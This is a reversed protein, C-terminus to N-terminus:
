TGAVNSFVEPIGDFFLMDPCNRENLIKMLFPMYLSFEVGGNRFELSDTWENEAAVNHVCWLINELVPYKRFDREVNRSLVFQQESYDASPVIIDGHENIDSEDWRDEEMYEPYIQHFIGNGALFFMCDTKKKDLITLVQIELGYKKLLIQGTAEKLQLRYADLEEKVTRIKEIRKRERDMEEQLETKELYEDVTMGYEAAKATLVSSALMKKFPTLSIIEAGIFEL